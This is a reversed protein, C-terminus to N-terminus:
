TATALAPPCLTRTAVYVEVTLRVAHLTPGGAGLLVGLAGTATGVDELAVWAASELDDLAALQEHEAGDVVILVGAVALVEATDYSRMELPSDVWVAPTALEDPVFAHVAEPPLLGALGGVLAAHVEARVGALSVGYGM